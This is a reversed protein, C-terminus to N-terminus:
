RPLWDAEDEELLPARSILISKALCYFFAVLGLVIGTCLGISGMPMKTEGPIRIAVFVAAPLGFLVGGMVWPRLQQDISHDDVLRQRPKSPGAPSEYPNESM